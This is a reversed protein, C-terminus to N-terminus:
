PGYVIPCPNFCVFPVDDSNNLSDLLAEFVHDDDTGESAWAAIAEQILESAPVWSGNVCITAGPDDLRHRCNFIFALLQQALQECPDGGGNSDVLFQSVEARPTGAAAIVEAWEGTVAAVPTGDGFFGDFPEDGAGFYSSAGDYPDLGNAYAIDGDTLETLGNKNHWYGKTDFDAHRVCYNGIPMRADTGILLPEGASYSLTSEIVVRIPEPTVWDDSPPIEDVWYEGPFLDGFVACGNEDTQRRDIEKLIGDELVNLTIWFGPLPPEGDDREGDGDRDYFKPCAGTQGLGVNGFQVEYTNGAAVTLTVTSSPPDCGVPIGNVLVISATVETGEPQNETVTWTGAPVWVTHPTYPDNSAGLADTLTFMWGTIEEEREGWTGDPDWVGDANKDHFKRVTIPILPLKGKVKFNDTKSFRPIFGFSGATGTRDYLDQPTVWVKYVGGNNPTNAYPFLQVTFAGHDLDEGTAHDVVLDILGGTVHFQRDTIADTSLLTKGPPDTVQFYYWGDPLGAASAPANPGPGGDLYVDKKDQFINANVRTGYKDTTFIAGSIQEQATAASLLAALFLGAGVTAILCSTRTNM